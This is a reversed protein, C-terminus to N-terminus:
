IQKMSAPLLSKLKMLSDQSLSEINDLCKQLAHPTPNQKFHHKLCHMLDVRASYNDKSAILSVEVAKRLQDSPRLCGNGLLTEFLELDKKNPDLVHEKMVKETLRQVNENHQELTDAL